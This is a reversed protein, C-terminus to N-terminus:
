KKIDFSDWEGVPCPGVEVSIVQAAAPGNHLWSLMDTLATQDESCIVASVSGDSENRVWGTLGLEQAKRQTNVRFYVGQVRGEIRCQYCQKM